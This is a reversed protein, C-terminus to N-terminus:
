RHRTADSSVLDLTSLSALSALLGRVLEPRAPYGLSGPLRWSEDMRELVLSAGNPGRLEIRAARQVDLQTLLPGVDRPPRIDPATGLDLLVLVGLVVALLINRRVAGM